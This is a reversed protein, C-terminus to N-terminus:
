FAITTNCGLAIECGVSDGTTGVSTGGVFTGASPTSSFHELTGDPPQETHPSLRHTCFSSASNVKGPSGVTEHPISWVAPYLPRIDGPSQVRSGLKMFSVHEQAMGAGPCVGVPLISGAAGFTSQAAIECPVAVTSAGFIGNSQSKCTVISLLKSNLVTTVANSKIKCDCTAGRIALHGLPLWYTFRCSCPPVAVCFVVITFARNEGEFTLPSTLQSLSAASAVHKVNILGTSM